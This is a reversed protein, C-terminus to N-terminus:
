EFDCPFNLLLFEIYGKASIDRTTVNAPIEELLNGSGVEACM